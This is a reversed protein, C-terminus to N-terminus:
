AIASCSSVSTVGSIVALLPIQAILLHRRRYRQGIDAFPRDRNVPGLRRWAKDPVLLVRPGCAKPADDRRLVEIGKGPRNLGFVRGFEGFGSAFASLSPAPHVASLDISIKCRHARAVNDAGAGTQAVPELPLGAKTQSQKYKGFCLPPVLIVLQHLTVHLREDAISEPM